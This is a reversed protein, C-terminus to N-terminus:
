VPSLWLATIGLGKLYGLKSLIGKLSGGQWRSGGSEAWLQWSWPQGKLDPRAAKLKSRDLLKRDKERGDSFRDVLLFYLVEDRWDVPSHHYDQRRPLLVDDEISDPRGGTLAREIFTM